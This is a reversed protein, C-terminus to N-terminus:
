AVEDAPARDAESSAAAERLGWARWSSPVDYRNQGVDFWWQGSRERDRQGARPEAPPHGRTSRAGPVWEGPALSTRIDNEDFWLKGAHRVSGTLSMFHRALAPDRFMYSTPSTLFDVDPCRAGRRSRPPGNQM